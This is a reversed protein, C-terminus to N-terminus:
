NKVMVVINEVHHTHPFMDVPQVAAVNYLGSLMTVDRAQTSPNCSVYIIKEPAADSVARLVDAHMGARPPDTIIIDPKGHEAIFAESLIDKIDGTFFRTNSIGNLKSNLGADAVAEPVSEMGIVVEAHKAVFNAITGTGTYLDYVNERGTLDAFERIKQYLKLAQATNTQFFSKPGIRFSLDEMKETIYEKGTYCIIQQDYLTDNKKRNVAYLLSTIEPFSQKVAELLDLITKRDEEGFVVIIMLESTSSNRIILNRLFGNHNKTDYFKLKKEEGYKKIFNRIANGPEAQLWCKNIDLVKDYMGPLHFGAANTNNFVAGSDIEERSFWKDSSFTYELKNRYAETKESALIPQVQINDIKGIRKLTEEVQREKYKLQDAYSLHQWKCGGCVGFHECVPKVRKESYKHFFLPKGEMYKRRKRTVRIDVIDGPIVMPVFIVMNDVRAIANGEAGVSEILVNRLVPKKGRSL